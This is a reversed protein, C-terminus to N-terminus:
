NLEFTDGLSNDSNKNFNYKVIAKLNYTKMDQKYQLEGFTNKCIIKISQETLITFIVNIFHCIVFHSISMFIINYFNLYIKLYYNSYIFYILIHMTCFLSFSSRSIINFISWKYVMSNSVKNIFLLNTLMFMFFLIFLKKEYNDILIWDFGDTDFILDNNSREYFIFIISLLVIILLSFIVFIIKLGPSTLDLFKMFKRCYSFPIFKDKFYIKPLPNQSVIDNHYFYIIGWFIGFFFKNLFLHSYKITCTEGGLTNINFKDELDHHCSFPSLLSNLLFLIILLKDFLEDKFKFVLYIIILSFSISIQINLNIYIYRYCFEYFRPACSNNYSYQLKFPVFLYSLNSTCKKQDKIRIYEVFPSLDFTEEIVKIGINFVFFSIFCTIMKPITKTYFLLLTYGFNDKNHHNVLYSFLKYSFIFGELAIYVDIFFTSFKFFSMGCSYYFKENTNNKMLLNILASFSENYFLIFLTISKFFSIPKLLNDNYLFNKNSILLNLNINISFFSQLHKRFVITKLEKNNINAEEEKKMEILKTNRFLHVNDDDNDDNLEEDDTINDVVSIYNNGKTYHLYSYKYLCTGFIIPIIIKIILLFIIIIFLIVSIIEKTNLKSKKKNSSSISSESILFLEKYFESKVFDYLTKNCEIPICLGFDTYNKRLYFIAKNEYNVNMQINNIIYYSFNKAVCDWFNGIDSSHKGSNEYIEYLKDYSLSYIKNQCINFNILALEDSSISIKVVNLIEIMTKNLLAQKTIDISISFSIIILFLIIIFNFM